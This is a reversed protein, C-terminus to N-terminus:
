FYLLYNKFSLCLIVYSDNYVYMLYRSGECSHLFPSGWSGTKELRQPGVVFGSM